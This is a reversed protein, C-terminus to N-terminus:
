KLKETQTDCACFEHQAPYNCHTFDNWEPKEASKKIM